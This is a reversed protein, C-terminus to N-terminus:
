RLTIILREVPPISNCFYTDMRQLQSSLLGLLEDFSKISMRTYDLFAYEHDRLYMVWFQGREERDAIVPHIWYRRARKKRREREHLFYSTVTAAAVFCAMVDDSMKASSLVFVHLLFCSSSGSSSYEGLICISLDLFM